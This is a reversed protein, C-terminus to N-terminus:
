AGFKVQVNGRAADRERCVPCFLHGFSLEPGPPGVELRAKACDLHCMHHQSCSLQIAPGPPLSSLCLPCLPDDAPEALGAKGSPSTGPAPCSVCPPCHAEGRVGVCWHGCPLRRTCAGLLKSRCAKASCVRGQFRQLLAQLESKEICHGYEVGLAGLQAKLALTTVPAHGTSSASAGNASNSARGPGPSHGAGTGTGAPRGSGPRTPTAPTSGHTGHRSAGGSGGAQANYQGGAPLAVKCGCYLCDPM